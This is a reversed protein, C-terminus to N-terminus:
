KNHMQYSTIRRHWCWWHAIYPLPTDTNSCKQKTWQYLHNFLQKQEKNLTRLM